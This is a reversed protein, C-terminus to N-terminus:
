AAALTKVCNSPIVAGAVYPIEFTLTIDVVHRSGPELQPHDVELIGSDLVYWWDDTRNELDSLAHGVGNVRLRMASAPVETGDLRLSIGHLVSLPLSRYWPLRVDVEFGTATRKLGDDSILRTSWM